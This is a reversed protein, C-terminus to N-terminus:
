INVGVWHGLEASGIRISNLVLEIIGVQNGTIVRGSCWSSRRRVTHTLVRLHVLRLLLVLVLLVLVLVLRLVLV